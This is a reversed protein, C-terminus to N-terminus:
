TDSIVLIFIKMQMLFRFQWVQRQTATNMPLNRSEISKDVNNIDTTMASANIIPNILICLICLVIVSVIYKKRM